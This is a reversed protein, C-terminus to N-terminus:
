GIMIRKQLLLSAFQFDMETDIDISRDQPMIYAFSGKQYFYRDEAFKNINVIYIAGNLRYFKGNAQRQRMADEEIFGDLELSDPLHGCWLPSHEAECVSIVARDAKERYLEYAKQIDEATRLPSTPQLLCFTDYFKGQAEYQALVETVTDWSSTADTSTEKSRLFPINAGFERAIGAYKESDTSVMVEEFEGSQIAAEITWAMLSKGCLDRINKDKVGKSGSRAPIIAVNKM